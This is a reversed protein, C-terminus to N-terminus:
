IAQIKYFNEDCEPCFYPYDIEDNHEIYLSKGCEPCVKGPAKQYIYVAEVEKWDMASCGDKRVPHVMVLDEDYEVQVETEIIASYPDDETGYVLVQENKGFERIKRGLFSPEEINGKYIEVLRNEYGEIQNDQLYDIADQKTRFVQFSFLGEPWDKDEFDIQYGILIRSNDGLKEKTEADYLEITACGGNEEPSIDEWTETMWETDWILCSDDSAGIDKTKYSEVMNLAEEKSEAEITFKQRAWVTVKVDQYFDFERKMIKKKKYNFLTDAM